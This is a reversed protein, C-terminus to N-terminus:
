NPNFIELLFESKQRNGYPLEAPWSAEVHLCAAIGTDINTGSITLGTYWVRYIGTFDAVAGGAAKQIIQYFSRDGSTYISSDGVQSFTLSSEDAGPKSTDLTGAAPGMYSSWQGSRKAQVALYHLLEEASDASYNEAIADRNASLGVPFLAMISVMGVAIAGIALVIEVMNFNKKNTTM